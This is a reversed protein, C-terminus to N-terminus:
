DLMWDLISEYPLRHYSNKNIEKTESLTEIRPNVRIDNVNKIPSEIDVIQSLGYPEEIRIVDGVKWPYEDALISSTVRTLRNAKVRHPTDLTIFYLLKM